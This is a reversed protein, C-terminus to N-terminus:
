RAVRRCGAQVLGGIPLQDVSAVFALWQDIGAGAGEGTPVGTNSAIVRAVRDGINVLSGLGIMGGWDQCYLTVNRLDEAEFWATVWETHRALTYYSPDNPKDLMIRLRM